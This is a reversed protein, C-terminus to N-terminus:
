LLPVIMNKLTKIFWYVDLEEQFAPEHLRLFDEFTELRRAKETDAAEACAELFHAYCACVESWYYMCQWMRAEAGSFALSKELFWRSQEMSMRRLRRYNEARGTEQITQEGRLCPPCLLDATNEMIQRIRDADQGFLATFYATALAEFDAERNWLTQGLVFMGFGCPLFVRTQQCSIYGNLGLEKLRRVDEWLIQANRYDSIDKFQDWMYHYEYIFSDCNSLSQWAHLFAINEEVSQPMQLRNRVFPPLVQTEGRSLTPLPASYSRTIPAFMFLFRDPNHLTVSEPPWLLDLYALFVIKTPLKEQTLKEDLLNLIQLYFDSPLQESCAECECSNNVGDALWFHIVDVQPHLHLFHMVESVLAERVELNSTCLNTDLPRGHFLARNGDIKALWHTYTEEPEQAEDWGLGLIGVANTTWGHGTAHFLLGRKQLAQSLVGYTFTDVQEVSPIKETHQLLPNNDHAYWTKFFEYPVLFQTFYTNFGNKPLWDVFDLVNEFSVAGEICFGRHRYSATELVSVQTKGNYRLVTGQPGPKVFWFGLEHLFRYVAILVSRPNSGTITGKKGSFRICIADDLSKDAVNDLVEPLLGPGVKFTAERNDWAGDMMELHRALEECAFLVTQDQVTPICQVM